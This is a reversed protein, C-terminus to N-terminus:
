RCMLSPKLKLPAEMFVHDRARDARTPISTTNGRRLRDLVQVADRLLSASLAEALPAPPQHLLELAAYQHHVLMHQHHVAMHQHHVAMHQHHHQYHVLMHQHHVPVYVHPRAGRTLSASLAALEARRQHPDEPSVVQPVLKERPKLNAVQLQAALWQRVALLIRDRDQPWKPPTEYGAEIKANCLPVTCYKRDGWLINGYDLTVLLHEAQEELFKYPRTRDEDYTFNPHELENNVGDPQDAIDKVTASVHSALEKAHHELYLKPLDGKGSEFPLWLRRIYSKIPLAKLKEEDFGLLYSSDPLDFNGGQTGQHKIQSHLHDLLPM